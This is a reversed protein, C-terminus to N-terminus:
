APKNQPLVTPTQSQWSKPNLCLWTMWTKWPGGTRRPGKSLCVDHSQAHHQGANWFWLWISTFVCIGVLIYHLHRPWSCRGGKASARQPTHARCPLVVGRLQGLAVGIQNHASWPSRKRGGALYQLPCLQIIYIYPFNQRTNCHSSNYICHWLWCSELIKMGHKCAIQQM